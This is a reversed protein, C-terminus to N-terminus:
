GLLLFLLPTLIFFWSQSHHSQESGALLRNWTWVEDCLLHWKWSRGMEGVNQLSCSIFLVFILLTRVDGASLLFSYSGAHEGVGPENRIWWVKTEPISQQVSLGQIHVQFFMIFKTNYFFCFCLRTLCKKEELLWVTCMSARRWRMVSTISTPSSPVLELTLPSKRRLTGASLICIMWWPQQFYAQPWLSDYLASQM